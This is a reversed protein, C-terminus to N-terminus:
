QYLSNKWKGRGTTLRMMKSNASRSYVIVGDFGDYAKADKYEKLAFSLRKRESSKKRLFVDRVL